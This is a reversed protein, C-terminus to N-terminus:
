SEGLNCVFREFERTKWTNRLTEEKPKMLNCVSSFFTPRKYGGFASFKMGQAGRRITPDVLMDDDSRARLM